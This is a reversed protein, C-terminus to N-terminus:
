LSLSTFHRASVRVPPLLIFYTNATERGTGRGKKRSHCPPQEGTELILLMNVPKLLWLLDLQPASACYSEPCYSPTESITGQACFLDSVRQSQTYVLM